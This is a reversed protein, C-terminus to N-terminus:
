HNEFASSSAEHSAALSMKQSAEKSVGWCANKLEGSVTQQL